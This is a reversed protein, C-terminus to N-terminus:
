LRMGEIIAPLASFDDFHAHHPLDEVPMRRYGRTFLLLPLPIAAATQADVESDGVYIAHPHDPAAGLDALVARLPASDPKRQSLSDGAIISGFLPTLSLHDMIALTPQMPKNTCIGLPHGRDALVGLTDFVNPYLRTLSTASHYRNMFSALLERHQEPPLGTAKSIRQWLIDVGGGVFSRVQDLTLPPREYQRLVVNAAAHIDPASDILTGDLDFIVPCPAECVTM